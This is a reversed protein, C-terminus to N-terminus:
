SNLWRGLLQHLEKVNIPKALFDDMGAALCRQRDEEYAGATLAVVPLRVRGVQTDMERIRRTAEIGDMVPMQIDMLVLDPAPRQADLIVALAEEGNEVSDVAIGQKRLLVEILRRNVPNDEVVLVRKGALDALPLEVARPTDRSEEMETVVDVKVEFWFTSGRDPVSEVGVNGGMAEALNRVISLGLGTGAFRSTGPAGLQSFSSFLRPQLDDPIGIGTDTVTFRLVAYGGERNRETAVVKVGGEKTFKIANSVLNSLMQRLRIADGRYRLGETGQWASDLTLGQQHAMQDFLAGVEELLRAPSFAVPRLEIKGAEIKSFDLIDNLLTLLTQGSNLITRVYDSREEEKLGPMLLLQAMGLIGNMPTRIEHSMTALFNSKAQTSAIVAREERDIKLIFFYVLGYIATLIALTIWALLRAVENAEGITQSLPIRISILARISNQSEFFGRESGYLKILEAPADKPDGHCKLCGKSSRDIPLVVHLTPKGEYQVIQSFEKIEGRNMRALMASEAEDTQNIPNRPNDTGLKFYVPPLGTKEREQNILERVSRATYTFSMVKPSFYDKYLLGENQLRYIEPRGVETVYRHVAKHTLLADLAAKRAEHIAYDETKQYYIVTLLVYAILFIPLLVLLVQRNKPLVPFWTRSISPSDQCNLM